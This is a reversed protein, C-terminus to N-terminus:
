HKQLRRLPRSLGFIGLFAATLAIFGWFLGKIKKKLQFVKAVDGDDYLSKPKILYHPTEEPEGFYGAPLVRDSDGIKSLLARQMPEELRYAARYLATELTDKPFAHMVKIWSEQMLKATEQIIPHGKKAGIVSFSPTLNVGRPSEHAPMLSIFFDTKCLDGLSKQYKLLGDVFVGGEDILLIQKMLEEKEKCNKTLDFYPLLHERKEESFACVTVGKLRVKVKQDTWFKVQWDPNHSIWSRINKYFSKPIKSNGIWIFHLTKPIGEGIEKAQYHSEYFTRLTLDEPIEGYARSLLCLLLISVIAKKRRIFMGIILGLFLIEFILFKRLLGKMEEYEKQWVKKFDYEKKNPMWTGEYLHTAYFSPLNFVPCFYSSPFLIDTNGDKELNNQVALTLAIFSGNIIRDFEQDATSYEAYVEDHRNAAITLAQELIPHHASAGVLATLVTFNHGCVKKHPVEIGAYFDYAQNLQAFSKKPYIDHDAYIGGFEALIEYRLFDSKESYNPSEDYCRKLRSFPFDQVMMRQMGPCPCPRERDTWFYFTFEPHLEMWARINKISELPFNKPGLWIFHVISPIKHFSDLKQYQLEKNKEYLDKYVALEPPENQFAIHQWAETFKGCLAEFDSQQNLEGWLSSLFLLFIFSCTKRLSLSLIQLRSM